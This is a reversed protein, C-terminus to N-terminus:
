NNTDLYEKIQTLTNLEFCEYSGGFRLKPVYSHKKFMSHLESELTSVTYADLTISYLIKWDYPMKVGRQFRTYISQFTKGVKIFHETENFCEIIYLTFGSFNNSSKGAEEWDSYSWFKKTNAYKCKPCGCGDLHDNPTQEFDVHIGCTIKLKTKSTTYVANEYTYLNNHVINAKKIFTEATSTRKASGIFASSERACKPCKSGRLHIVPTQEFDGHEKCTILVKDKSGIYEVKSYDYINNHVITARDVFEQTTLKSPM